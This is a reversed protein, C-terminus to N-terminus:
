DNELLGPCSFQKCQCTLGIGRGKGLNWAMVFSLDSFLSFQWLNSSFAYFLKISIAM